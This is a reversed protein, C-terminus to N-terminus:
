ILKLKTRPKVTRKQFSCASEQHDTLRLMLRNLWVVRGNVPIKEKEDLIYQLLFVEDNIEYQKSDPIFIGGNKLFPMYSANLVALERISVSLVAHDHTKEEHKEEKNKIAVENV